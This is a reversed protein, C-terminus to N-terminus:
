SILMVSMCACNKDSRIEANVAVFIVVPYPIVQTEALILVSDHYGIYRADCNASYHSSMVFAPMHFIALSQCHLSVILIILKKVRITNVYKQTM